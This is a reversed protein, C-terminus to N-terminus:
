ALARLARTLDDFVYVVDDFVGEDVRIGEPALRAGLREYFGRAPNQTLTRLAMSTRGGEVLTTALARFLEKGVGHGTTQPMLYLTQLYADYGDAERDLQLASAFGVIEGNLAAVFTIRNSDGLCSQWQALRVGYSRREIFEPSLMGTYHAQWSAVHVRAIAQADASEARRVTLSRHM